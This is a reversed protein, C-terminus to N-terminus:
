HVIDVNISKLSQDLRLGLNGSGKIKKDLMNYMVSYETFKIDLFTPEIQDKQCAQKLELWYLM